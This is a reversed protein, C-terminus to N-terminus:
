CCDRWTKKVCEICLIGIGGSDKGVVSNLESWDIKDSCRECKTSKGCKECIAIIDNDDIGKFIHNKLTFDMIDDEAKMMLKRSCKVCRM